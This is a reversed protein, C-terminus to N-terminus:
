KMKIYKKGLLIYLKIITLILLYVTMLNQVVRAADKIQKLFVEM